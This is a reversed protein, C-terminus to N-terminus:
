NWQCIRARNNGNSLPFFWCQWGALQLPIWPDFHASNVTRIDLQPFTERAIMWQRCLPSRLVPIPFPSSIFSPAVVCLNRLNLFVRPIQSDDAPLSHLYRSFRLSKAFRAFIILRIFLTLSWYRSRIKLLVCLLWHFHNKQVYDWIDSPGCLYNRRNSDESLLFTCFSYKSLLLYKIHLEKSTLPLLVLKNSPDMRIPFHWFSTVVSNENFLFSRM